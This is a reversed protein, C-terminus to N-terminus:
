LAAIVSPLIHKKKPKVVRGHAAVRTVGDMTESTLIM